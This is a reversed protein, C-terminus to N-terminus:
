NSKFMVNKFYMELGTFVVYRQIQHHQLLIKGIIPSMKHGNM